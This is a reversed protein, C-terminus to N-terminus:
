CRWFWGPSQWRAIGRAYAGERLGSPVARMADESVSVVCPLIMIGLVFGPVLLNFGALGPVFSRFLPTLLLLAFYGFIVTPVAELLELLPKVMERIAVPAYESLYIALLTGMPVAVALAIGAAWLTATLLPLIGYRPQAFVPTWEADFLFDSLPVQAFSSWSERVLIVLIATTVFISLAACLFLAVRM